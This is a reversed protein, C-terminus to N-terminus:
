PDDVDSTAITLLAQYVAQVQHEVAKMVHLNKEWFGIPVAMETVRTFSALLDVLSRDAFDLATRNRQGYEQFLRLEADMFADGDLKIHFPRGFAFVDHFARNRAGSIVTSYQKLSPKAKGALSFPLERFREALNFQAGLILWSILPKLDCLEAFLNLLKSAGDAFNYASRVLENYQERNSTSELYRRLSKEYSVTEREISERIESLISPTDADVISLDVPRGAAERLTRFDTEFTESLRSDSKGAKALEAEIAQWITDIDDIRSITLTDGKIEAISSLDPEYRLITLGPDKIPISTPRDDGIRAVLVRIIKGMSNLERPLAEALLQSQSQALQRSQLHKFDNILKTKLTLLVPPLKLSDSEEATVALYGRSKPTSSGDRFLVSNNIVILDGAHFRKDARWTKFTRSQLISLVGQSIQEELKSNCPEVIIEM